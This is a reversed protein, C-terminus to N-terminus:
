FFPSLEGVWYFFFSALFPPFPPPPSSYLLWSKLKWKIPKCPHIHKHTYIYINSIIVRLSRLRNIELLEWKLWFYGRKFSFKLHFWEIVSFFQFTISKISKLIQLIQYHADHKCFEFLCLTLIQDTRAHTHTRALTSPLFFFNNQNNFEISM